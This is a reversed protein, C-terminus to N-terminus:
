EFDKKRGVEKQKLNIKFINQYTTGNATAGGVTNSNSNFQIKSLWGWTCYYSVNVTTHSSLTYASVSSSDGGGLFTEKLHAWYKCIFFTVVTSGTNAESYQIILLAGPGSNTWCKRQYPLECRRLLAANRLNFITQSFREGIGTPSPPLKRTWIIEIQRGERLLLPPPPLCATTNAYFFWLLCELGYFPNTQNKPILKNKFCTCTYTLVRVCVGAELLRIKPKLVTIIVCHFDDKYRRACSKMSAVVSISKVARRFSSHRVCWMM